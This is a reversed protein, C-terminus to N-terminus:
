PCTSIDRYPWAVVTCLRALTDLSIYSIEDSLTHQLIPSDVMTPSIILNLVFRHIKESPMAIWKMALSSTPINYFISPIVGVKLIEKGKNHSIMRYTCGKALLANM